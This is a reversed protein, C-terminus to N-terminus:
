GRIPTSLVHASWHSDCQINKQRNPDLKSNVNSYVPGEAEGSEPRRDVSRIGGGGTIGGVESERGWSIVKVGDVVCCRRLASDGGLAFDIFYAPKLGM